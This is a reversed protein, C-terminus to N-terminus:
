KLSAYHLVGDVAYKKPNDKKDSEHEKVSAKCEVLIVVDSNKKRLIFEPKGAGLGSKSAASLLKSIVDSDSKQEEIIINTDDYYGLQKFKNRILTEAKRENAM